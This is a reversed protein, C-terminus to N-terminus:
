ELTLDLAGMFVRRSDKQAANIEEKTWTIKGNERRLLIKLYSQYLEIDRAQSAVTDELVDIHAVTNKMGNIFDKTAADPYPLLDM